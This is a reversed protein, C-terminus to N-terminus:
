WMCMCSLLHVFALCALVLLAHWAFLTISCVLVRVLLFPFLCAPWCCLLYALPSAHLCLGRLLCAPLARMCMCTCRHMYVRGPMGVWKDAWAVALERRVRTNTHAHVCMHTTPSPSHTFDDHRYLCRHLNLSWAGTCLYLLSSAPSAASIHYRPFPLPICLDLCLPLCVPLCLNGASHSLHSASLIPLCVIWFRVSGVHWCANAHTALQPRLATPM